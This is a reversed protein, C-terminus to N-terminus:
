SHLLRLFRSAAMFEARRFAQQAEAEADRGWQEAQWTEDVTAASWTEDLSLRGQMHALALVASGSITTLVHLAALELADLRSVAGAIASLAELPQTIPMLGVRQRLRAGLEREAWALLPDWAASQRRVLSEPSEARYCVLDSGAFAVIHDAVETRHQSVADLASNAIKTLPMTAPDIREGQAAWEAGIAEALARVPLALERKAPTRVGRGDLTIRFGAPVEEIAVNGYFRKPLPARLAEKGPIRATEHPPKGNGKGDESM